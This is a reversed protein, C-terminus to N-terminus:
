KLEGKAKREDRIKRYRGASRAKIGYRKMFQGVREPTVGFQKAIMRQTFGSAYLSEVESAKDKVLVHNFKM